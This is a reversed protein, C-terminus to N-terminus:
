VSVVEPREEVTGVHRMRRRRRRRWIRASEPAKQVVASFIIESNLIQLGGETLPHHHVGRQQLVSDLPHALPRFYKNMAMTM